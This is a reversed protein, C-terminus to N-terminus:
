KYCVTDINNKSVFEMKAILDFEESVSYYITKIGHKMIQKACHSCPKSNRYQGRKNVRVVYLITDEVKKKARLASYIAHREAHMTRHETLCFLAESVYHNYGTSLIKGGPGVLVAGHHHYKIDSKKCLKSAIQMYHGHSNAM